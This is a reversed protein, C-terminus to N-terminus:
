VWDAVKADRDLNGFEDPKLATPLHDDMDVCDLDDPDQDTAVVVEVSGRAVWLVGGEDWDDRPEYDDPVDINEIPPPTGRLRDRQWEEWEARSAPGLVELGDVSVSELPVPEPVVEGVSTGSGTNTGGIWRTAKFEINVRWYRVVDDVM